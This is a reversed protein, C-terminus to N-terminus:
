PLRVTVTQAPGGEPLTLTQTKTRGKADTVTVTYDGYFVRRTLAGKGDSKATTDTWWQKHILDMLRTYAPKPTMDKRVLGAPAGQWANADSFDWWTIARLSPHSFLLTYFQTVYDAQRAEGEPTTNWDPLTTDTPNDRRPGSIVTTETFHIPRGFQAFRECTAWVDTLPWEGGHMHSQLGIADPLKGDKQLQALLAVNEQGTNYDNYLFTEPVGPPAAARAWGLATAVVPAPGDRKIWQAEGNTPSQYQAGNAENLVDWYHITDKYRPVLDSVRAQLLPIAADPTGPAWSPWVEHWVLPHGKPTIGHAVSWAAMSQLKDYDPKGQTSEFAGWYFPLTGYNFLATFEKQYALEAPSTNAPDLGFFNCGFLFAHRTMALHVSANPVPKGDADVVRVTLDGKRYKEIRAQTQAPGIAARAAAVAPDVGIDTLTAGTIEVVGVKQGMQFHASIGKEGYGPSAGEVSFEQWTPTLTPSQEGVANYPAANREVTIRLPNNTSSRAWFHLQVRHGQPIAENVVRTLQIMYFPDAPKAVTVRLVEGGGPADAVTPRELTADAPQPTALFWGGPALLDPPPAAPAPVAGFILLLPLLLLLAFPCPHTTM